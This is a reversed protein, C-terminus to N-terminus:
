GTMVAVLLAITVVRGNGVRRWAHWAMLGYSATIAFSRALTLLPVDGLWWLLYMFIESLWSQYVYPADAPLTYAWRNTAILSGEAITTRGAAMHWWLDNPPLPALSLFLWILALVTLVWIHNITLRMIPASQRSHTDAARQSIRM